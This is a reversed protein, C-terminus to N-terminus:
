AGTKTVTATKQALVVLIPQWASQLQFQLAITIIFVHFVYEQGAQTKAFLLQHFILAPQLVLALDAYMIRASQRILMRVTVTTDVHFFHRLAFAAQARALTVTAGDRATLKLRARYAIFSDVEMVMVVLLGFVSLTQEVLRQPLVALLRVFTLTRM